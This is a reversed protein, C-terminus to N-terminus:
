DAMNTPNAFRSDLEVDEDNEERVLPPSLVNANPKPPGKAVATKTSLAPSRVVVKVKTVPKSQSDRGGVM